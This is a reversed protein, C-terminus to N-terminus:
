SSTWRRLGNSDSTSTFMTEYNLGARAFAVECVERVSHTEGTAVVYDDPEDQQVMAWM